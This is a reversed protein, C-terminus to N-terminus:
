SKGSAVRLASLLGRTRPEDGKRGRWGRVFVRLSVMALDHRNHKRQYALGRDLRQVLEHRLFQLSVPHQERTPLGARYATHLPLITYQASQINWKVPELAGERDLGQRFALRPSPAISAAVSAPRMCPHDGNSEEGSLCGSPSADDGVICFGRLSRIDGTLIIFPEGTRSTFIGM